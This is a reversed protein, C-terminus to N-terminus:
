RATKKAQGITFANWSAKWSTAPLQDVAEMSRIYWSGSNLSASQNVSSSTATITGSCNTIANTIASITLACAAAAAPMMRKM